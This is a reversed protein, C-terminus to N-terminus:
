PDVHSLVNQNPCRDYNSKVHHKSLLTIQGISIGRLMVSKRHDIGAM